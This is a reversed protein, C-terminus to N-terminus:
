ASVWWAFAVLYLENNASDANNTAECSPRGNGSGSTTTPGGTSTAVEAGNVYYRMNGAGDSYASLQYTSAATITALTATTTLSSGNHAIGVLTTNNVQFGFGLAALAGATPTGIKCRLIGNASSAERSIVWTWVMPRAFNIQNRTVGSSFQSDSSITALATSGATSLTRIQNNRVGFNNVEGTGSVSSSLHATASEYGYQQQLGMAELGMVTFSADPITVTRAGTAAHDFTVTNATGSQFAPNGAFTETDGVPCSGTAAFALPGGCGSLAMFLAVISLLMALSGVIYIRKAIVQAPM